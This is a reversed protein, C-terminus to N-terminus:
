PSSMHQRVISASGAACFSSKTPSVGTMKVTVPYELSALFMSRTGLARYYRLNFRPVHCAALELDSFVRSLSHGLPVFSTVIGSPVHPNNSM